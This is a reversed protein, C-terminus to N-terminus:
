CLSRCVWWGQGAEEGRFGAAEIEAQVSTAHDFCHCFVVQAPDSADSVDRMWADGPESLRGFGFLRGGVSRFTDVLRSRSLLGRPDRYGVGLLLAGSTTLAHRIRTLTAIRLARGPIHQFSGSFFAGDYSGPPDDLDTASQVRFEIALGERRAAERAAEIMRAAIDIAVVRYGARAFGIAERGAGCGVDLLRGGSEVHRGVLDLESADAGASALTAYRRVEARSGYKDRVGALCAAADGLFVPPTLPHRFRALIELLDLAPPLWGVSVRALAGRELSVVSPGRQIAVVRGLIDGASRARQDAAVCLDYGGGYRCLVLDRRRWAGTRPPAVHLIQGERFPPSPELLRLAMPADAAGLSAETANSLEEGTELLVFRSV